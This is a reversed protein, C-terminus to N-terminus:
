EDGLGTPIGVSGGETLAARVLQDREPKSMGELQRALDPEGTLWCPRRLNCGPCSVTINSARNDLAVALPEIHDIHFVGLEDGCWRCAGGTQIYAALVDAPQFHPGFLWHDGQPEQKHVRHWHAISRRMMWTFVARRNRAGQFRAALEAHEEAELLGYFDKRAEVLAMDIEAEERGRYLEVTVPEVRESDFHTMKVPGVKGM